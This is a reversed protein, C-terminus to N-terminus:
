IARSMIIKIRAVDIVLAGGRGIVWTISKGSDFHNLGLVMFFLHMTLKIYMLKQIRYEMNQIGYETNQIRDETKQIRYETNQIRYKKNQIRYETGYFHTVEVV